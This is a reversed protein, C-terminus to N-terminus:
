LFRVAAIAIDDRRRGECFALTAEVISQVIDPEALTRNAVAIRILGDMGFFEGKRNRAETVGDTAGVFLTGATVEAFAQRFLHHQDDFIGVLPATPQLVTPTGDPAIL